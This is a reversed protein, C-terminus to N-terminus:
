KVGKIIFWSIGWATAMILITMTIETAIGLSIRWIKLLKTKGM